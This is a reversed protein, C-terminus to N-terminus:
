GNESRKGGTEKEGTRWLAHEETCPGRSCPLECQKHSERPGGNNPEGRARCGLGAPQGLQEPDSGTEPAAVTSDEVRMGRAPTKAAPRGLKLAPPRARSADGTAKTVAITGAGLLEGGGEGRGLHGGRM